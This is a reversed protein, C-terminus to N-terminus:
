SRRYQIALMASAALLPGAGAIHTTRAIALPLGAELDLMRMVLVASGAVVQLLVAAIALNCVGRLQPDISSRQSIAVAFILLSGAALMALGLHAVVGSTQHRYGVGFLIAPMVLLPLILVLGSKPRPRRQGAPLRVAAWALTAFLFPSVAAHLRPMGPVAELLAEALALSAPLFLERHRASLLLLGFILYVTIFGFVVHAWEMPSAHGNSSVVFTGSVVPVLAFRVLFVAYRRM